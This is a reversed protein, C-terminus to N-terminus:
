HTSKSCSERFICSRVPDCSMCIRSSPVSEIDTSRYNYIVVGAVASMASAPATIAHLFLEAADDYKRLGVYCM